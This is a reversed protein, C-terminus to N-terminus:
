TTNFPDYYKIKKLSITLNWFIYVNKSKFIISFVLFFDKSNFQFFIKVFRLLILSNQNNLNTFAWLSENLILNWFLLGPNLEGSSYKDDIKLCM